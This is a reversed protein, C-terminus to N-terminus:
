SLFLEGAMYLKGRGSIEVREGLFKCQLSGTRQSLQMASLETKNLEKAWYPILLTHASGTVPDENVGVQPGFFRSVFDVAKGRATVIIGRAEIKALKIFDPVLKQIENESSFLLMLDSKGRYAAIPKIDFCDTYENNLDVPNLKDAPFNLSLLNREKTVTLKGSKHSYFDIRSEEHKEHHFLVYAAALTAHGCLDVEVQPTFWRIHYQEGEKVFFVTESLNNEMAINQMLEDSLWKELPCVAAPNGKFIQDTFADVQYIKQTM